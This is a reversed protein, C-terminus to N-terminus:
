TRPRKTDESHLHSYRPVFATMEFTTLFGENRGRPSIRATLTYSLEATLGMSIRIMFRVLTFFSVSSNAAATPRARLQATFVARM